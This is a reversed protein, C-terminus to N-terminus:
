LTRGATMLLHDVVPGLSLAPFFNLGGVILVVAILLGVFTLGTTPFTGPSPPAIRKSAMSGGIALVPVIIAFRGILMTIGLTYNYFNTNVGLGAFASGNNGAASSFAYLIESLGHAGQNNLTASGAPVVCAIATGILICVCPALAAVAAWKVERAEIKKGLYEPTRGVMLGAIFVTLIVFVLMGYLGSGVGGFIVEGLMINFLAVGGAIPTLSDHMSNISGNSADTTATSWLVSNMVGLRVEKGEMNTALGTAPIRQSEAWWSIAFGAIFLAFMAGFITWGQRRDGTMLGYTYTLAASLILIVFMELFNTLPTPNEFPHASNVGYFGGGNTGLQKIAIQSAAPGLPIVQDAGELTKVTKYREFTQPVGQQVLVVALLLSLPLLVYLTCRVLDAWFNGLSQGSRRTLGRALAIAAAIGTAASVFNQVALGAMQTLHSMTNEGSYAQWNTNTMFSVATNFALAFPVNELHQPNLPLAKQFLQLGLVAFFGLLNFALLALTYHTWRMERQADVGGFRYILREIPGLVPSLLTREGSFVRHMFAGLVPTLTVLLSLYFFIQIWEHPKMAAIIATPGVGRTILGIASVM